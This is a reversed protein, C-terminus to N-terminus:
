GSSIISRAREDHVGACTAITASSPKMTEAAVANGFRENTCLQGCTSSAPVTTGNMEIRWHCGTDDVSVSTSDHNATSRSAGSANM